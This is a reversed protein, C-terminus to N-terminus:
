LGRSTVVEDRCKKILKDDKPLNTESQVADAELKKIEKYEDISVSQNLNIKHWLAAYETELQTWKGKVSAISEIVKQWDLIPLAIAILASIGSLIKWIIDVESWLKWSAVTGSSTIALFIKVFKDRNYYRRSLCSWYRVNMDADLM